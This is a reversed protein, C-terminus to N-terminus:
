RRSIRRQMLWPRSLSSSGIGSTLRLLAAGILTFLWVLLLPPVLLCATLFRSWM